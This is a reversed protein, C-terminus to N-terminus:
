LPCSSRTTQLQPSETTLLRAVGERGEMDTTIIQYSVVDGRKLTPTIQRASEDLPLLVIAFSARKFEDVLWQIPAKLKPAGGDATAAWDIEVLGDCLPAAWYSHALVVELTGNGHRFTGAVRGRGMLVGTAARQGLGTELTFPAWRWLEFMRVSERSIPFLRAILSIAVAVGAAVNRRTVLHMAFVLMVLLVIPSLQFYSQM